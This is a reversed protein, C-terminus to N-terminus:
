EGKHGNRSRWVLKPGPIMVLVVTAVILAVLAEM